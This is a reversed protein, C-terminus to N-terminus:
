RRRAETLVPWGIMALRRIRRQHTVEFGAHDLLARLRRPPAASIPRGQLSTVRRVIDDGLGSVMAISAILLRGGPRLLDALGNLAAAQDHYWHFSESCVVVDISSHRLPLQEANAQILAHRGTTQRGLREAAESLMGQSFDVGILAADPFRSSLRRTFQGTGCGLDLVTSPALNDLRALMADHIPRYTLAQFGRLDYTASWRDFFGAEQARTAM